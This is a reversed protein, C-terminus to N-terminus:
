KVVTTFDGTSSAGNTAMIGGHVTLKVAGKYLKTLTITVRTKGDFSIGKIGLVASYATKGQKKVSGLVIYRTKNGVSRNDMAENFRVTIASLGNKTRSVSVIGTVRPPTRNPQKVNIYVTATATAYDTVDTPTFTVLLSQGAGVRLITGAAPTYTFVGPVSATANLQAASLPTGALIDAPKAWTLAPTTKPSINVRFTQSATDIGDSVSAVVVFTGAYTGITAVRLVSNDISVTVPVAASSASLSHATASYTLAANSADTGNLVVTGSGVITQDAIPALVPVVVTVLFARSVSGLGDTASAVVGFTGTYGADPVVSVVSGFASVTIPVSAPTAATVLTPDVYAGLGVSVVKVGSLASRSYPPALEYLDGNPLIYYWYDTGQAAYGQSSVKGRLYKEGMGRLGTMYGSADQYLGYTQKLWHPLPQAVASYTLAVGSPSDAYLGAATYGGADIVRDRIPALTPPAGEVITIM